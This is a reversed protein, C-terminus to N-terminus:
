EPQQLTVLRRYIVSLVPHQLPEAILTDARFDYIVPNDPGFGPAQRDVYSRAFGQADTSPRFATYSLGDQMAYGDPAREM